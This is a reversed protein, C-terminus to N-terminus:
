GARPAARFGAADSLWGSNRKKPFGHGQKIGARRRRGDSAACRTSMTAM